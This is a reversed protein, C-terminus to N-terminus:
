PLSPALIVIWKLLKEPLYKSRLPLIFHLLEQHMGCIIIHNKIDNRDKIDQQMIENLYLNNKVFYELTYYNNYFEDEDFKHNNGTDVLYKIGDEM